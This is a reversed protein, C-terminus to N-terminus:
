IKYTLISKNRLSDIEKIAKALILKEDYNFYDQFVYNCRACCSVVNEILYGLNNDKRDLGYGSTPLINNCYHCSNSKIISQYQEFSISLEIKKKNTVSKLSSYRGKPSERYNKNTLLYKDNNNERYKKRRENEEVASKSYRDRGDKNLKEKNKDRYKKKAERVKEPNNKAYEKSREIYKDKNKDYDTMIAGAM